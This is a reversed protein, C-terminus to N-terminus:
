LFRDKIASLVEEETQQSFEAFLAKIEDTTIAEEPEMVWGCGEGVALASGSGESWIGWASCWPEGLCSQNGCFNTAPFENTIDRNNKDFLRLM